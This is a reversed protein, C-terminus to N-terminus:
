ISEGRMEEYDSRDNQVNWTFLILM